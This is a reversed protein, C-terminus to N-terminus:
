IGGHGGHHYFRQNGNELYGMANNYNGEEPKVYGPPAHSRPIVGPANDTVIDVKESLLLQDATTEGSSVFGSASFPLVSIHYRISLRPFVFGPRLDKRVDIEGHLVRTDEQPAGEESPWWFARGIHEPFTNNSRRPAAEDTATSGISVTRTLFIAAASPQSLLDLAQADASTLTLLLPIHSGAAYSLPTALALTAEVEITKADFLTGTVKVSPLIKWGEPDGEPGILPSGDSYALRRLTSPPPAVWRPVYAFSTSLTQNVKFMGRKVTVIIKYDIYAPSARESFTPPLQYSKPSDRPSTSVMAEKPLTLSFPWVITGSLKSSSPTPTWLTSSLSLFRLPEQGVATNEGHIDVFVGKYGEPKELVMEVEGRVEDGDFFVPLTKATPARSHLRITLWRKGKANNLSYEHETRSTGSPPTTPAIVRTTHAGDSYSPLESDVVAGKGESLHSASVM